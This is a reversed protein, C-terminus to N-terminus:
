LWHAMLALMVSKGIGTGLEILTLQKDSTIVLFM